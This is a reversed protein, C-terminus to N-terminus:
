LKGMHKEHVKKIAPDRFQEQFLEAFWDWHPYHYRPSGEDNDDESPVYWYNDCLHVWWDWATGELHLTTFVVILSPIGLFHQQFVEFYTLCDGLFREIDDHEGKFPTPTKMLIPKIGM